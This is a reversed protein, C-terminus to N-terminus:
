LTHLSSLCCKQYYLSRSFGRCNYCPEGRGRGELWRHPCRATYTSPPYSSQINIWTYYIEHLNLLLSGKWSRQPAHSCPHSSKLPCFTRPNCYETCTGSNLTWSRGDPSKVRRWARRTKMRTNQTAVQGYCCYWYYLINQSSTVRSFISRVSPHPRASQLPVREETQLFIYVNLFASPM